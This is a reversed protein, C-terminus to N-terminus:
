AGAASLIPALARRLGAAPNFTELWRDFERPAAGKFGDIRAPDTVERLAAELSRADGSRFLRGNVGESVIDPAVGVVDSCVVALGAAVAEIVVLSWAEYESTLVLADCNRYIAVVEEQRAQFGAWIVRGRLEAPVSAELEARLPGDGVIVLDWDPRDKAFRSFAEILLDIRKLRILRGSYVLRRRGGALGFRQAAGEVADQAVGRIAAVDPILPMFNMRERPVGYREFYRVGNTGMPLLGAARAFIRRLVFRKCLRKWGGSRDGHINSDSTFFIPVGHHVCDQLLRLRGLDNWGSLVVARVGTEQVWRAIRGGKRWEGLQGDARIQRHVSQGAGFQVPNVDSADGLDWPQDTGEHTFVSYLKIEPIRAAIYRHTALRYPASANAVIAVPVRAPASTSRPDMPPKRVCETM